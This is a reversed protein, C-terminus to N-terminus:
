GAFFSLLVYVLVVIGGAVAYYRWPFAILEPKREKRPEDSGDIAQRPIREALRAKFEDIKRSDGQYMGLFGDNLCFYFIEFVVPHTEDQRLREELISYFLEGGNDIEYLESQLPEWRAVAGRSATNVLEDSYAVIPFLAYYVEHEALLEGLRAKLWTLRKRLRARIDVLDAGDPHAERFALDRALEAARVYRGEQASTAEPEQEVPSAGRGFSRVLGAEQRKNEVALEAARVELCLEEIEAFATEIHFWLAATTTM